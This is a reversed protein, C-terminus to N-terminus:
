LTEGAKQTITYTDKYSGAICDIQASREAGTTNQKFELTLEIIGPEGSAPSVTVWKPDSSTASWPCTTYVTIRRKGAEHSETQDDTAFWASDPMDDRNDTKQCSILAFALVLVYFKIHKM